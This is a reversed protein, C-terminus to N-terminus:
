NLSMFSSTRVSSHTPACFAETVRLVMDARDRVTWAPPEEPRRPRAAPYAPTVPVTRVQGFRTLRLMVRPKLM